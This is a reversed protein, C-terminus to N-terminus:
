LPRCRSGAAADTGIITLASASSTAATVTVSALSFYSSKASLRMALAIRSSSRLM